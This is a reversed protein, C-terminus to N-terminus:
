GHVSRWLSSGIVVQRQNMDDNETHGCEAKYCNICLLHCVRRKTWVNADRAIRDSRSWNNQYVFSVEIEVSHVAAIGRKGVQQLPVSVNHSWRLRSEMPVRETM